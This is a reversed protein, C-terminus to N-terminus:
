FGLYATYRNNEIGAASVCAKNWQKVQACLQCAVSVDKSIVVTMLRM